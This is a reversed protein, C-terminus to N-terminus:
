QMTSHQDSVFGISYVSIRSSRCGFLVVGLYYLRVLLKYMCKFQPARAPGRAGGATM